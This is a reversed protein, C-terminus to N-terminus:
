KSKLGRKSIVRKRFEDVTMLTRFNNMREVYVNGNLHDIEHQFVRAHFGSFVKSQQEGKENLYEVAISEHRPVLGRVGGLSLCGEWDDIVKKSHKIIRPNIVVTPPLSKLNPRVKSPKVEIVALMISEGIQPAALGVGEVKRMTYFMRKVLNRFAASHITKVLINRGKKQLVPNGFNTLKLLKMKPPPALIRVQIGPKPSWLRAM